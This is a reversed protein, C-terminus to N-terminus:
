PGVTVRYSGPPLRKAWPVQTSWSVVAADIASNGSSRVIQAPAQLGMSDIGIIMELTSPLPAYKESKAGDKENKVSINSIKGKLISKKAGGVDSVDYYFSRPAITGQTLNASGLTSFPEWQNLPIAAYPVVAVPKESELTLDVPKGPAFRLIPGFSPLPSDEAQVEDVAALPSKASGAPLYAASPDLLAQTEALANGPPLLVAGATLPKAAPAGGSVPKFILLGVVFVGFGCLVAFRTAPPLRGGAVNRVTSLLGM